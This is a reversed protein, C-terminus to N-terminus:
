FKFSFGGSYEFGGLDLSGFGAFDDGLTDDANRWRAEAFFSTVPSLRMDLGALAFAVFTAGEARYSTRVISLEDSGFDIFDGSERLQWALLGGGLGAYPRVASRRDGFSVVYAATLEWTELSTTHRIEDGNGDVWDRYANGGSGEYWATGFMISSSGGLRWQYDAGVMVDEFDSTAGTFDVLKDNWYQSSADPEFLGIRIRVEGTDPGRRYQAAAPTPLSLMALATAVATTLITMRM